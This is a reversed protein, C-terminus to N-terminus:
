RLTSKLREAILKTIIKYTVNCLAIPRFQDLSNASDIKPILALFTANLSKLTQKNQYSEQVVELLDFKIIEWFEKFFEILFVNPGISKGKKMGFIVKELEELMIPRLLDMNMSSSVLQPICDLITRIEVLSGFEEKSFLQSIYRTAELSILGKSFLQDRSTSILSNISNGSRHAKVTNHFLAINRDGEQLWDM